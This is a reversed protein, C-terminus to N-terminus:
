CGHLLPADNSTARATLLFTKLETLVATLVRNAFRTVVRNACIQEALFPYRTGEGFAM